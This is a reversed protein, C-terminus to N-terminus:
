NAEQDQLSILQKKIEENRSQIDNQQDEEEEDVEAEMEEM